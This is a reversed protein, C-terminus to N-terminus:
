SQSQSSNVFGLIAVLLGVGVTFMAFHKPNMMSQVTSANAQLSGMAVLIAGVIKTKHANFFAILKSM